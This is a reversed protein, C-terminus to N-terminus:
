SLPGKGRDVKHIESVLKMLSRASQPNQSRWKKGRRKVNKAKENNMPEEKNQVQKSAELRSM